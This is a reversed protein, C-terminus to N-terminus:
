PYSHDTQTPLQSWALLQQQKAINVRYSTESPCFVVTLRVHECGTVTIFALAMQSTHHVLQAFTGKVASMAGSLALKM